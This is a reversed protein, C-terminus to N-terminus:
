KFPVQRRAHSSSSADDPPHYKFLDAINFASSIGIDNSLEIVYANENIKWVIQYPGYKKNKLKNYTGVHFRDRRLYVMVLDGDKFVKDRGKKDM